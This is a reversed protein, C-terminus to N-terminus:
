ISMKKLSKIENNVFTRLSAPISKISPLNWTYKFDAKEKLNESIHILTGLGKGVLELSDDERLYNVNELTNLTGIIENFYKTIETLRLRAQPKTLKERAREILIVSQVARQFFSTLHQSAFDNNKELILKTLNELRKSANLTGEEIYGSVEENIKLERYEKEGLKIESLMQELKM